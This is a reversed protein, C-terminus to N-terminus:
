QTVVWFRIKRSRGLCRCILEALKLPAQCPIAGSDLMGCGQPNYRGTTILSKRRSVGARKAGAKPPAAGGDSPRAEEGMWRPNMNRFRRTATLMRAVATKDLVSPM